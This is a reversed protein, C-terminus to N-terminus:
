KVNLQKEELNKLTGANIYNHDATNLYVAQDASHLATAYEIHIHSM